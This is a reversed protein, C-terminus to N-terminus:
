GTAQRRARRDLLEELKSRTKVEAVGLRSRDTPSLGLLSLWTTIQKELHELQLVEPRNHYQVGSVKSESRYSRGNEAIDARLAAREDWGDRLLALLALQDSRAIWTSAPTTLIAAILDDGTTPSATPDGVIVPALAVVKAPLPRHGPNGLRRKQETPMPAPGRRCGAM